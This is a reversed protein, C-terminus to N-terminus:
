SVVELDSARVCVRAGDRDPRLSVTAFGAADNRHRKTTYVTAGTWIRGPVSPGTYTREAYPHSASEPRAFISTMQNVEVLMM